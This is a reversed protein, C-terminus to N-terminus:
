SKNLSLLASPDPIFKQTWLKVSYVIYSYDANNYLGTVLKAPGLYLPEIIDCYVHMCKIQRQLRPRFSSHPLPHRSNAAIPFTESLTKLSETSAQM